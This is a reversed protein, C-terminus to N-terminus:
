KILANASMPLGTGCQFVVSAMNTCIHLLFVNVLQDLQVDIMLFFLLGVVIPRTFLTNVSLSRLGSVYMQNSLVMLIMLICMQCYFSSYFCNLRVIRWSVYRLYYILVNLFSFFRAHFIIFLIIDFWFM